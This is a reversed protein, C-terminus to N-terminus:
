GGLGRARGYGCPVGPRPGAAGRPGVAECSLFRLLEGLTRVQPGDWDPEPEFCLHGALDDAAFRVATMGLARAGSLERGGGDGVYLCREPPVGLRRCALLYIAPDPKCCRADISYAQADLLPAVPLSPLFAPLEYWCDSVVATRLGLRRVARLVPLAGSRLTTDALVADVRAEVAADLARRDPYAGLTAALRALVGAPTGCRGTARVRFSRDMAAFFRAPDCGLSRAIAVHAPGRRVARTLTGFFDFLVAKKCTCNKSM